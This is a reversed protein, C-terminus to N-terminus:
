ANNKLKRMIKLSTQKIKLESNLSKLEKHLTAAQARLATLEPGSGNNKLNILNELQKVQSQKKELHSQLEKIRKEGVEINESSNFHRHGALAGLSQALCIVIIAYKKMEAGM